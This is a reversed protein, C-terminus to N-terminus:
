MTLSDILYRGKATVSQEGVNFLQASELEEIIYEELFTSLGPWTILSQLLLIMEKTDLM